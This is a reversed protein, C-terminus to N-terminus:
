YLDDLSSIISFAYISELIGCNSLRVLRQKVRPRRDKMQSSKWRREPADFLNSDIISCDEDEIPRPDLQLQLLLNVQQQKKPEFNTGRIAAHPLRQIFNPPPLHRKPLSRLTFANPLHVRFWLEGLGFDMIITVLLLGLIYIAISRDSKDPTMVWMLLTTAFIFHL